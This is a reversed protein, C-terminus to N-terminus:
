TPTCPSTARPAADQRAFAPARKMKTKGVFVDVLKRVRGLVGGQVYPVGYKACLAQLKPQVLQYQRMPLDPYVHHEIQYNLWMHAFDITNTGTRYNVSGIVQRVYAEGRSAPRSEFRYLDDGAHNPGIVCFTHVNAVAEAALSNTLASLWAWPGLPLFLAPLAGFTFAAYPLYCQLLLASWPAELDHPAESGPGVEGRNMWTGLTSPAYYLFKWTLSYLGFAAYGVARPLGREHFSEMNREVLDPDRAEGTFSHHLVNHEYIWAEPVMWDAWDLFRRHGRAFVRSTYRAPIGPVKDYGRHGVHHMIMWRASRGMALAAISVPNPCIGATALGVATCARGWREMKRLHAIDEEGLSADIERGLARIDRAFGETDITTPDFPRATDPTM